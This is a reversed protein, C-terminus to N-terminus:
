NPSRLRSHLSTRGRSAGRPHTAPAPFGSPKTVAKPTASMIFAAASMVQYFRVPRLREAWGAAAIASYRRSRFLGATMALLASLAVFCDPIVPATEPNSRGERAECHCDFVFLGG